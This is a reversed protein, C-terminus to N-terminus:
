AVKDVQDQKVPETASMQEVLNWRLAVENLKDLVGNLELGRPALTYSVQPPITAIHRREIVQARELLRLRETLVKASIGPVRRKLEGFRVPENTSRLVWLIYTTWPGMLLRLLADMPCKTQRDRM